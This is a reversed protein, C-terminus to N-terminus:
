RSLVPYKRLQYFPYRDETFRKQFMSGYDIIDFILREKNQLPGPRLIRGVAQDFFISNPPEVFFAGTMHSFSIGTEGYSYTAIIIAGGCCALAYDGDDQDKTSNLSQTVAMLNSAMLHTTDNGSMMQYTNTLSELRSYYYDVSERKHVFMYFEHGRALMETALTVIFDRREQNENLLAIGRMASRLKNEGRPTQTYKTPAKFAFTEVKVHFHDIRTKINMTAASLSPGHHDHYLVDGGDPRRDLTGSMALNYKCRTLWFIDSFSKTCYKPVEDYIVFGYSKYNDTSKYKDSASNVVLITVDADDDLFLSVKIDPVATKYDRAAQLALKKRNTIYLTRVGLMMSLLIALFTKGAGTWLDVVCSATMNDVRKSCYNNAMIYNAAAVQYDYFKDPSWSINSMRRPEYVPEVTFKQIFKKLTVGTFIPFLIYREGDRMFPKYRPIPDKDPIGYKEILEPDVPPKYTFLHLQNHIFSDYPVEIGNRRVYASRISM